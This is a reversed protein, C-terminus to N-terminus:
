AGAYAETTSALPNNPDAAKPSHNSFFSCAVRTLSSQRNSWDAITGPTFAYPRRAEICRHIFLAHKNVTPQLATVPTKNFIKSGAMKFTYPSDNNKFHRYTNLWIHALMEREKEGGNTAIHCASTSLSNVAENDRNQIASVLQDQFLKGLPFTKKESDTSVTITKTLSTIKFDKALIQIALHSQTLCACFFDYELVTLFQQSSIQPEDANRRVEFKQSSLPNLKSFALLIAKELPHDNCQIIAKLRDAPKLTHHTLLSKVKSDTQQDESIYRMVNKCKEILASLTKPNNTERVKQLLEGSLYDELEQTNYTEDTGQEPMKFFLNLKLNEGLKLLIAIKLIDLNPIYIIWDKRTELQSIITFFPDHMTKESSYSLAKLHKIALNNYDLTKFELLSLVSLYNSSEDQTLLVNLQKSLPRAGDASLSIGGSLAIYPPTNLLSKIETNALDNFCMRLRGLLKAEIPNSACDDPNKKLLSTIYKRAAESKRALQHVLFIFFLNDPEKKSPRLGVHFFLALLTEPNDEFAKIICDFYNDFFKSAGEKM